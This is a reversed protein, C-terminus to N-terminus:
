TTELGSNKFSPSAILSKIFGSRTTIPESSGSVASFILAKYEGNKRLPEARNIVISTFDASIVLYTALAMNAVLIENIFSTALIQSSTPASTFSTRIPIPDSLLIPYLKM